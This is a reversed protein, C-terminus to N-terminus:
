LVNRCEAARRARKRGRARQRRSEDGRARRRVRARVPARRGRRAPLRAPRASGCRRNRRVFRDDAPERGAAVAVVRQPLRCGRAAPTRAIRGPRSRARRRPQQGAQLRLIRRARQRLTGVSSSRPQSSRSGRRARRCRAAPLAVRRARLRASARQPSRRGRPGARHRDAVDLARRNGVAHSDRDLHIGLRREAGLPELIRAAHEEIQLARARATGSRSAVSFNLSSITRSIRRPRCGCVVVRMTNSM